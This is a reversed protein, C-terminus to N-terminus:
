GIGRERESPKGTGPYKVWDRDKVEDWAGQLCFSLDLGCDSAVGCAYILLDGLADAVEDLLEDRTGRIPGGDASGPDLKLVAHALEGAEECVGLAHEKAGANPFNHRAWKEREGQIRQLIDYYIM